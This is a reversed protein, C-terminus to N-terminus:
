DTLEIRILMPDIGLTRPGTRAYLNFRRVIAPDMPGVHATGGYWRGSMQVRVRPEERINKVFGAHEGHVAVIWTTTGEKPGRALPTRRPQGTRRGRTELIVWWPVRGALPMALPNM